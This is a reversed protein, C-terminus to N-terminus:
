HWTLADKVKLNGMARYLKGTSHAYYRLADCAHDDMKIPADEGIDAKAADWSYSLLEDKLHQCDGIQIQGYELRGATTVIGPLVDNDANRVNFGEGRLLRKFSLPTSPDVYVTLGVISSSYNAKAWTVVAKAHEAETRTKTERADYIYESVCVDRRFMLAAFVSALAFDVSIIPKVNAGPIDEAEHWVPYILGSAGCWVGDIYRRKFHGTFSREYRDIVAQSLSPNDRMVFHLVEGDLPDLNDLLKRKVWHAPSEPNYSAWIKAGEISMRSQAMNWMEEPINCLEDILLGKLTAGQIRKRSKADAAGLVWINHDRGQYRFIIRTGLARNYWCKIGLDTFADILPFGVNRMASEVSQSILAHDHGYGRKLAWIAFGFIQGTTKGSRIAGGAFIALKTSKAFSIVDLQKDSFKM